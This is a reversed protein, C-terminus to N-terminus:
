EHSEIGNERAQRYQRPGMGYRARFARAFDSANRYGAEEAILQIQIPTTELQLRAVELQVTSLYEFVTIGLRLRFLDTLKKENVGVERALVELGKWKFHPAHLILLVRDVLWNEASQISQAEPTSGHNVVGKIEDLYRKAKLQVYIRAMVEDASFPKGIYDVGGASFGELKHAVSANASLFIVPIADTQVNSKLQRCVDFGSIHPMSVDLLIVDPSGRLAKHMVERGDLVVMVDIEHGHLYKMLLAVSEIQDDVILVTANQM